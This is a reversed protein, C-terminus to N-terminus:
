TFVPYWYVSYWVEGPNQRISGQAGRTTLMQVEYGLASLINSWRLGVGDHLRLCPGQAAHCSAETSQYASVVSSQQIEILCETSMYSYNSLDVVIKEICLASVM